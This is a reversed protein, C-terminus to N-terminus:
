PAIQWDEVIDLIYVYSEFKLIAGTETIELLQHTANLQEGEHRSVGNIKVMRFEADSSYIHATVELEPLRSRVSPPLLNIDVPDPHRIFPFSPQSPIESSNTKVPKIIPPRDVVTEPPQSTSWRDGFFFYVGASNVVALLVLAALFHKIGYKVPQDDGQLATIGPALKRARERESKNLADLIYSM